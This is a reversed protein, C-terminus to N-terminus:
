IEVRDRARPMIPPTRRHAMGHLGTAALTEHARRLRESLAQHSVGFCDALEAQSVTRPVDYYGLEYARVLTEHQRETLGFRGAETAGSLDAAVEFALDLGLAECHQHAASVHEPDSFFLHVHWGGGDGSVGLVMAGERQLASLVDRVRTDWEVQLLCQGPFTALVDLRRVSTDDRMVRCLRDVDATDVWLYPMVRGSEHAVLRLAQFREAQAWAITEALAFEDAPVSMEVIVSM